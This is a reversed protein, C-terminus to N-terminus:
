ASMRTDNGGADEDKGGLEIATELPRLIWDLRDVCWSPHGFPWRHVNLRLM